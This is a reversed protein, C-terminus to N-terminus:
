RDEWMMNAAMERGRRCRGAAREGDVIGPV